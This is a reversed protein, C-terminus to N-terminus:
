NYEIKPLTTLLAERARMHWMFIDREAEICTELDKEEIITKKSKTLIWYELGMCLLLIKM